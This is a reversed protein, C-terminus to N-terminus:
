GGWREAVQRLLAAIQGVHEVPVEITTVGECRPLADLENAIELLRGRTIRDALTAARAAAESETMGKGWGAGDSPRTM